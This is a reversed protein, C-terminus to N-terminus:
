PTDVLKFGQADLFEGVKPQWVQPFRTFLSHGDDGQPPFQVLQANGGAGLYANFWDRPLQPGFYMDNEAYVWLSPIRATRGYDKFMKELLHPACPRQPMTKPNGGGGGAFNITAQVGPPNLAAVAAATAGGFSQGVVVARDKAADPRQRMAEMVALTQQTSIAFAPPYNKKDCPGSNELDEGGTVGYGIRTPVAVIFGRRLFFDSAATYQARGVAARGEPEAARGHNLVLIPAPRPNASDSWVTVKISQNFQKGYADTVTVPVDMQEQRVERASASALLAGLLGLFVMWRTPQMM